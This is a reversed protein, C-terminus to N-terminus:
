VEDGRKIFESAPTTGAERGAEKTENLGHRAEIRSSRPSSGSSTWCPSAIPVRGYPTVLRFFSFRRSFPSYVVSAVSSLLFRHDLAEEINGM